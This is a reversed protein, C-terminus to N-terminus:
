GIWNIGVTECACDYDPYPYMNRLAEECAPVTSLGCYGTFSGGGQVTCNCWIQQAADGGRLALIQNSTLEVGGIEDLNRRITKM